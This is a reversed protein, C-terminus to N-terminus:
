EYGIGNGHGHVPIVVAFGQAAFVAFDGVIERRFIGVSAGNEPARFVGRQICFAFDEVVLGNIPALAANVVVLKELGSFVSEVELESAFEDREAFFVVAIIGISPESVVDIEHEGRALVAVGVELFVMASKEGAVRGSLVRALAGDFVFVDSAEGLNGGEAEDHAM